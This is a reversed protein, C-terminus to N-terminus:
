LYLHPMEVAGSVGITHRMEYCDIQRAGTEEEQGTVSYHQIDDWTKRDRGRDKVRAVFEVRCTSM